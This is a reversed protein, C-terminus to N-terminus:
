DAWTPPEILDDFRYESPLMDRLGRGNVFDYRIGVLFVNRNRVSASLYLDERLELVWRGDDGNWLSWDLQLGVDHRVYGRPRDDDRFRYGPRYRLELRPAGMGSWRGIGRWALELEARDPSHLDENIVMRARAVALLDLFPRWYLTVEPRLGFRHASDYANYVLPDFVGDQARDPSLSYYRAHLSATPVLSLWPRLPFSRGLRLRGHATWGLGGAASQGHLRGMLDVRLALPLRRQELDVRAGYAPASGPHWRLSSEARLWLRRPVLQRRWAADLQLRNELAEDEIDRDAIDDRRFSLGVSLTPWPSAPQPQWIAGTLGADVAFAPPWETRLPLPSATLDLPTDRTDPGPPQAGDGEAPVDRRHWLRVLARGGEPQLTVRYTVPAPLILIATTAQSVRLARNEDGGASPDVPADVRLGRRRAPESLHGDELPRAEVTLAVPPEDAYRRAEVRITTPGLVATEVPRAGEAVYMLGPRLVPIVASGAGPDQGLARDATFRVALRVSPDRGDLVVEVRHRGPALAARGLRIAAGLPVAREHAARDDVRWRAACTSAAGAPPPHVRQCWVQARITAPSALDLHLLAGRGPRVARAEERPWPAALLARDLVTDPDPAVLEEDVYVREFGASAEAGRLPEWHSRRAAALLVRRVVPHAIQERLTLALGYALSALEASTDGRPGDMAAEFAHLAEIGIAAAGTEQYLDRLMQAARWHEGQGRLMEARYYRALPTSRERAAAHLPGPDSQARAARAAASWADLEGADSVLAMAAPELPIPADLERPQVPLYRTDRWADVRQELQAHMARQAPTMRAPAVAALYARDARTRGPEAIDLLRHARRLRLSIDGPKAAIARALAAIEAVIRDWAPEGPVRARASVEPRLGDSGGAPIAPAPRPASVALGGDLAPASTAPEVAPERLAVTAWLHHVAGPEAPEFWLWRAEPPLWLVTRVAVSMLRTGAMPIRTTDLPDTALTIARSMGTDTRLWVRVPKGPAKATAQLTVRVPLGRYWSPVQYRAARGKSWVPRFRRIRAQQLGPAALGAPGLSLFAEAGPPGEITVEHAGPPVAVALMEVPALALSSFVQEDVRLRISGPSQPLTAVYARMIVPRRADAPSPPALVRQRRGLPVPWLARPDPAPAPEGRAALDRIQTADGPQAAGAEAPMPTAEIGEGHGSVSADGRARAGPCAPRCEVPAAAQQADLARRPPSGPEPGSREIFRYSPLEAGPGADEGPEARPSPTEGSPAARAPEGANAAGTPEGPSEGSSASALEGSSEAAPEAPVPARADEEGPQARRHRSWSAGHRWVRRYIQRISSDLPARQWARQAAALSWARLEAAGGHEHLAQVALEAIRAQVVPPAADADRALAALLDAARERDRAALEALDRRLLWALAPDSGAGPSALVPVAREILGRLLEPAARRGRLHALEAVLALAPSLGPPPLAPAHGRLEALLQGLLVAEPADDGQLAADGAIIWDGLTARRELADFFRARRRRVRVRALSAGGRVSVTYTHQGPLLAVGVRERPGVAEGASTVLPIRQPFVADRPQGPARVFAQRREYGRRALIRDGAAIDLLGFGGGPDAPLLARVDIELIGPGALSVTWDHEVGDIRAYPRSAGPLSVLAASGAARGLDATLEESWVHPLGRAGVRALRALASATRWARVARHFRYATPRHQVLLRGLAHDARLGLALAASGDGPPIAPMAAGGEIWRLVRARVEEWRRAGGPRAPQEIIVRMPATASITWVDGRAPPQALYWLGAAVEGPVEEVEGRNHVAEGPASGIVRRLVLTPEPSAARAAPEGTPAPARADAVRRVRLVELADLWLAAGREPGIEIIGAITGTGEPVRHAVPQVRSPAVPYHVPRPKWLWDGTDAPEHAAMRAGAHAPRAAIVGVAGMLALAAVVARPLCHSPSYIVPCRM